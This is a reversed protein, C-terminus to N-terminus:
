ARILYDLRERIAVPDPTVLLFDCTETFCKHTFNLSALMALSDDVVLYKAHYKALEGEYRHVVAGLSELFVRLGKLRKEWGKAHQTLLIEVKVGRELAEALEDQVKTDDCRFVTLLLRRRARRILHLLTDRREGPSLVVHEQTTITSEAASM